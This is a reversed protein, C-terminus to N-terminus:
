EPPLEFFPQFGLYWSGGKLFKGYGNECDLGDIVNNNDDFTLGKEESAYQADFLGPDRERSKALFAKGAPTLRFHCYDAVFKLEGGALVPHKNGAFAATAFVITFILGYIPKM